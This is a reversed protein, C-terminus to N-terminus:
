PLPLSETAPPRIERWPAERPEREFVVVSDYFHIARTTRCFESSPFSPRKDPPTSLAEFMLRHRTWDHLMVIRDVVFQMFTRGDPRDNHIPWFAVNADEALYLGDPKMAPYLTEFSAIMGSAFHGGDDLVVDPAGIESLVAGLFAPDSQDGVFVRTGPEAFAACAPDIDIGVIRADPGLWHRWMQLSGGAQVGIEVFVCATQRYRALWQEYISFYHHWRDVPRSRGEGTLFSRYLDSM